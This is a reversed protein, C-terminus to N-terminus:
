ANPDFRNSYGVPRIMMTVEDMVLWNDGNRWRITKADRDTSVPFTATLTTYHCRNFWWGGGNSVACNNTEWEDNDNDYTTFPSGHHKAALADMTMNGSFGDIVLSFKQSEDELRGPLLELM